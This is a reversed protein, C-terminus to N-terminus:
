QILYLIVSPSVWCQGRVEMCIHVYSCMYKCIVDVCAYLYLLVYTCGAEM